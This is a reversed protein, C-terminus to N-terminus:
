CPKSEHPQRVRALKLFSPPGAWLCWESRRGSDCHSRSSLLYDDCFSACTGFAQKQKTSRLTKPVSNGVCSDNFGMATCKLGCCMCVDLSPQAGALRMNLAPSLLSGIGPLMGMAKSVLKTNHPRQFRWSATLPLMSHSQQPKQDHTLVVVISPQCCSFPAPVEHLLWCNGKIVKRGSGKV